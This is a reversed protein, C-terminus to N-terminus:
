FYGLRAVSIILQPSFTKFYEDRLDKESKQSACVLPLIFLPFNSSGGEFDKMKEQGIELRRILVKVFLRSVLMGSESNHCFEHLYM